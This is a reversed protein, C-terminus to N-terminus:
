RSRPPSPRTARRRSRRTRCQATRVVHYEFLGNGLQVPQDPEAHRAHNRDQGAQVPAAGDVRGDLTNRGRRGAPTARFSRGSTSRVPLEDDRILAIFDEYTAAATGNRYTLETPSSPIYLLDNTGRVDGNVDSSTTLTYPRGSQAPTSCRCRRGSSRAWRCTTRAPHVHHPPGSRLEVAVLPPNNPDGPM